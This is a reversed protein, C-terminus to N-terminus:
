WKILLTLQGTFESFYPVTLQPNVVYTNYQNNELRLNLSAVENLPLSAYYFFGYRLENENKILTAGLTNSLKNKFLNFGASASINITNTSPLETSIFRIYNAAATLSMNNKLFTTHNLLANVSTYNLSTNQASFSKQSIYSATAVNKIKGIKYQYTVNANLLDINVRVSDNQQMLPTYSARMTPWKPITIKIDGGFQYNSTTSLKLGTLNDSNHKVTGSIQIRSKWIRQTLKSEITVMDNVLYPVGFTQYYGGVCKLQSTLKTKGKFMSIELGGNFANDAVVNTSGTRQTVINKFWNGPGQPIINTTNYTASDPNNLMMDRTTQSGALEGFFSLRSDFLQIKFHASMVYNSQPLKLTEFTSDRPVVSNSDDAASLVTFLLHSGDLKGYGLSTSWLKRKYAAKLPDYNNVANIITGYTVSAFFNKPTFEAHVGNVRVGNLTFPSISPYSTGINLKNVSLLFKDLPRLLHKEKLKDIYYNPNDLNNILDEVKDKNHNIINSTSDLLGNQKLKGELEDKNKLIKEYGQKKAKLNNYKDILTETISIIRMVSDRYMRIKAPDIKLIDATKGLLISSDPIQKKLKSTIASDTLAGTKLMNKYYALTDKLIDLTDLHAMDALEKKVDPNEFMTKYKSYQGVDANEKIDNLKKFNADKKLAEDLKSKLLSRMARVDYNISFTNPDQGLGSPQTTIFTHIGIPVGYIVITPDFNTQLYYPDVGSGTQKRTSAYAMVQGTGNTSFKESKKKLKSNTTVTIPIVLFAYETDEKSHRLSIELVYDGKKLHLPSTFAATDIISTKFQEIFGPLVQMSGNGIDILPSQAEYAVIDWDPWKVKINAVCQMPMGNNIIEFCARQPVYDATGMGPMYKIQLQGHVVQTCLLLIVAIAGFNKIHKKATLM